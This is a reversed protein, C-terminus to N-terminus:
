HSLVEALSGLRAEARGRRQACLKGGQADRCRRWAADISRRDFPVAHLYFRVFNQTIEEVAALRLPQELRRGGDGYLAVLQAVLGPELLHEFVPRLEAFTRAYVQSGPSDSRWAAIHTLCGTPRMSCLERVFAARQEEPFKGGVSRTYRRFLSTSAGVRSAALDATAPLRARNGLFFARAAQHSLVPRLLTHVGGSLKAAHIVGLPILEHALLSPFDEIGSRELGAAFDPQRSRRQLREVDLIHDEDRFGLIILDSPLAFWIAVHDFVSAYTRLVLAVTEADTEYTHFWQAYVGGPALKDRAAVLFERSFLMEVGAVWPNSPESAIVDYFGESRLLSRYADGRHFRMKPNQSANQNYPDFLTAAELVGSSIEAVTVERSCDLSALEGATVGTGFGIVFSRECGDAFLAPLLAAMGMTPYDSPVSGDSKGNTLISLLEPDSFELVAVSTSPDDAYFLVKRRKEREGFFPEAGRFTSLVPKRLRFLGATLREPKWDPLLWLGPLLFALLLAGPVRPAELVRVALITGALVVAAVALRYVDDLDIWFLLVYGGLLAGLLSGMTNWSYLRGAVGGLDDIQRRLQHFLLPLTAGSLAVPVLLVLLIGAFAAMYYPFFAADVDRFIVRLRHAWYGVNQLQPYLAVLLGALIWQSAVLYFPRIRPLASVAFSGLAICLVFVAVVMSFTFHSAGFALGGLRILTTQLAMAAFGALLAVAAFANLAPAAAGRAAQPAAEVQSERRGLVLFVVGASLNVGGMVRVTQELGLWPILLFAAALAGIFAGVTNFAYVFAHLRTADGLSRSLAQTLIPITGGMLTAPPGILLATLLVDLAFGLSGSGGPLWLSVVQAVQFAVPFLLAYLGIAAEIAGYLRLLRVPRGAQGARTLHRRTIRGFLAYGLSLGGLFIGLIAATAESHSGLLIALYKQWAVEYVLGSFGTLLTLLLAVVRLM